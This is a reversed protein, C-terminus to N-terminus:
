TARHSESIFETRGNPNTSLALIELRKNMTFRKIMTFPLFDSQYHYDCLWQLVFYLVYMVPLVRHM